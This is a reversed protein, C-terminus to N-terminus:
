LMMSIVTAYRIDTMHSANKNQVGTCYLQSLDIVPVQSMGPCLSANLAAPLMLRTMSAITTPNGMGFSNPRWMNSDLFNLKAEM